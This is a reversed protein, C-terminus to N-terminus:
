SRRSLLAVAGAPARVKGGSIFFAFVDRPPPGGALRAFRRAWADLEDAPYCTEIDDRGRMLRAYAFNTTEEAILPWTENDSLCIAVGRGRCLDAFAPDLFSVNRAEVCHRLRRGEVAGPLLDLFAAFDTAEFRKTAMFQWLIPGLKEGLMAMGQGFFREIAAGASALVRRNTCFQSGKIAFIFDDPTERAWKEYSERKQLSYYTSNIEIATVQRSAYALEDAQRLKPPYFTGRWPPFIWGGMGARIHGTM